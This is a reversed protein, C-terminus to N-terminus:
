ILKKTSKLPPPPCNFFGGQLKGTQMQSHCNTNGEFNVLDCGWVALFTSRLIKLKKREKIALLKFLERLIPGHKGHEAEGRATEIKFSKRLLYKFKGRKERKM